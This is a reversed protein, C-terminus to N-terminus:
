QRRCGNGIERGLPAGMESSVLGDSTRVIEVADSRWGARLCSEQVLGQLLNGPRLPHRCQIGTPSTPRRFDKPIPGAGGFSDFPARQM